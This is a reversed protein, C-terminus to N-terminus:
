HFSIVNTEHIQISSLVQNIQQYTNKLNSLEKQVLNYQTQTSKIRDSYEDEM